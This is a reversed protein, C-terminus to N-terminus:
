ASTAVSTAASRPTSRRSRRASPTTSAPTGSTPATSTSRSRRYPLLDWAYGPLDEDMREQPVVSQPQNLWLVPRGDRDRKKYGIGDVKAVDEKLNGRLLNHLAYVGENLFVIDVFPLALM